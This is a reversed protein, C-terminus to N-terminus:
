QWDLSFYYPVQGPKICHGAAYRVECTAENFAFLYYSYGYSGSTYLQALDSDDEHLALITFEGQASVTYRYLQNRPSDEFLATVREVEAPLDEADMFWSAYIDYYTRGSHFDAWYRYSAGEQRISVNTQANFAMPFLQQYFSDTMAETSADIQRYHRIDTTVAPGFMELDLRPIVFPSAIVIGFCIVCEAIKRKNGSLHFLRSIVWELGIMVGIVLPVFLLYAVTHWDFTSYQQKQIYFVLTEGLGFLLRGIVLPIIIWLYINKLKRRSEEESLTRPPEKEEAVEKLASAMERISYSSYHGIKELLALTKQADTIAEGKRTRIQEIIRGSQTLDDHLQKLEEVTFGFKRLMAIARLQDVDAQSFDFSKRGLYNETYRPTILGEEIYFRIARDTLGTQECIQKIKM